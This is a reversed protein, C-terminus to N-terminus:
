KKDSTTKKSFTKCHFVPATLINAIKNCTPKISKEREKDKIRNKNKEIFNRQFRLSYRLRSWVASNSYETWDAIHVSDGTYTKEPQTIM